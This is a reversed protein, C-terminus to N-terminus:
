SSESNSEHLEQNANVSVLVNSLGHVTERLAAELSEARKRWEDRSRQVMELITQSGSSKLEELEWAAAILVHVNEILYEHYAEVAEVREESFPPYESLAEEAQEIAQLTEKLIDM